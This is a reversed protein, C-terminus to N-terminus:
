PLLLLLALSRVFAHVFVLIVCLQFPVISMLFFHFVQAEIMEHLLLDKPFSLTRSNWTHIILEREATPVIELDALGIDPNSVISCLIMQFHSAIREITPRDFLRSNFHFAATLLDRSEAIMLTLDFQAHKQGIDMSEIFLDSTPPSSASSATSSTRAVSSIAASSSSSAGLYLSVGAQNLFFFALGEDGCRQPKQLVFMVQFLPARSPDPDSCTKEVLLPFPLDQHELAGLVAHRVRSLHNRFSPNGGFSFRLVVPNVFYGVCHERALTSRCAM